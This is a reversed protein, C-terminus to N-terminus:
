GGPHRAKFAKLQTNFQDALAQEQDIVTNHAGIGLVKVTHLDEASAQPFQQTIREVAADVCQTYTNTDADYKQFQTHAAVMQEHSAKAGDPVTPPSPISCDQFAATAARAPEGPLPPPAAAAPVPVAPAPNVSVLPQRGPLYPLAGWVLLVLGAIGLVGRLAPARLLAAGLLAVLAALAGLILALTHLDFPM